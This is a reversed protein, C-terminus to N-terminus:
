CRNCDRIVDYALEINPKKKTKSNTSIIILTRALNLNHIHNVRDRFSVRTIRLRSHHETKVYSTIAVPLFHRYRNAVPPFNINNLCM